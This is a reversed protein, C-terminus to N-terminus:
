SEGLGKARLMAARLDDVIRKLQELRCPDPMYHGWEHVGNTAFVYIHGDPIRDGTESHHAATFTVVVDQLGPHEPFLTM